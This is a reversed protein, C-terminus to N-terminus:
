LTPDKPANGTNASAQYGIGIGLFVYVASAIDVAAPVETNSAAGYAVQLAGIVLGAIWFMTYVLKRAQPSDGLPNFANV